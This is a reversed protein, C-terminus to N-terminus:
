AAVPQAVLRAAHATELVDHVRVAHVGSSIAWTAIAVSGELRDDAGPVVGDVATLTGVFGKRSAGVLVREGRAVLEPLAGLLALNHHLAKGFGLGPDIWVTTCGAARAADARELLFATVEAVVDDYVPAVQMTTPDGQMHMAVYAVGAAGAVAMVDDSASVDNVMVAGADVCAKAVMAHRTDISVALGDAALRSVVGVVRDLEVSPHTPHAGPRTSEGGVDIITAGDAAMRAAQALAAGPDLFRGGDSFSDPTVNLIGM